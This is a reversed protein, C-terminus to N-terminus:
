KERSKVQQLMVLRRLSLSDHGAGKELLSFEEKKLDSGVTCKTMVFTVLM